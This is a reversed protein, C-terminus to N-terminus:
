KLYQSFVEIFQVEPIVIWQVLAFINVIACITCIILALLGVFSVFFTCGDEFYFFGDKEKYQKVIKKFVSIFALITAVCILLWVSDHTIGYVRYRALFDMVQPMVNDATWDIAIGLKQGMYDLVEIVKNNM